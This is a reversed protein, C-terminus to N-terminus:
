KEAIGFLKIEVRRNEARGEKTKNSAVPQDEGWSILATRSLDVGGTVLYRLVAKARNGGLKYNYGQSGASDAHGEIVVQYNKWVKVKAVLDNLSTIAEPTLRWKNFGFNVTGTKVLNAEKPAMGLVKAVDNKLNDVSSTLSTVKSELAALRQDHSAVKKELADIKEVGAALPAIKGDLAAIQEQVYGQTACGGLFVIGLIFAGLAFSLLKFNEKAKRM